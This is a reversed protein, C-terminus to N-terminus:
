SLCLQRIRWHHDEGPQRGGLVQPAVGELLNVLVGQGLWYGLASEAYRARLEDGLEDEFRESDSVGPTPPWHHDVNRAVQEVVLDVDREGRRAALWHHRATRDIAGRQLVDLRQQPPP